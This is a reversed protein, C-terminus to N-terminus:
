KGIDEKQLKSENNTNENSTEWMLYNKKRKILEIINSNLWLRKVYQKVLVTIKLFHLITEGKEKMLKNKSLFAHKKNEKFCSYPSANSMTKLDNM